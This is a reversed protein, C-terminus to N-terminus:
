ADGEKTENRHSYAAGLAGITGCILASLGLLLLMRGIGSDGSLTPAFLGPILFLGTMAAGFLGYSTTAILILRRLTSAHSPQNAENHGSGDTTSYM